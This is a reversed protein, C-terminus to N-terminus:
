ETQHIRCCTERGKGCCRKLDATGDELQGQRIQLMGRLELYAMNEPHQLILVDVIALAEDIEGTDAAAQARSFLDDESGDGDPASETAWERNGAPTLQLGPMMEGAAEGEEPSKSEVSTEPGLPTPKASSGDAKVADATDGDPAQQSKLSAQHASGCGSALLLTCLLLKGIM